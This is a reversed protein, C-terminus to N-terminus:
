DPGGGRDAEDKKAMTQEPRASHQDTQRNLFVGDAVLLQGSWHDQEGENYWEEIDTHRDDYCCRMVMDLAEFRQKRRM